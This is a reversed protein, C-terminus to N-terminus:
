VSIGARKLAYRKLVISIALFLVGSALSAEGASVARERTFADADAQSDMRDPNRGPAVGSVFGYMLLGLVPILLVM